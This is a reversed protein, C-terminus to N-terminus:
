SGDANISISALASNLYKEHWHLKKIIKKDACYKLGVLKKQVIELSKVCLLKDKPLRVYDIFFVGDENQKIFSRANACLQDSEAHDTLFKVINDPVVIHPYKAKEELSYADVLASGWVFLDDLFFDGYSVGGRLLIDHELFSHQLEKALMLIIALAVFPHHDGDKRLECPIAIVINDSFIKLKCNDVGIEPLFGQVNDVAMRYCKRVTNLLADDEDFMIGNKMGLLDIFVVVHDSTHVIEEDITLVELEAM